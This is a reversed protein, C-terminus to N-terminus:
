IIRVAVKYLSFLVVTIAAGVILSISTATIVFLPIVIMKYGVGFKKASGNWTLMLFSGISILITGIIAVYYSVM